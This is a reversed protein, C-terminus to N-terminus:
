HNEETEGPLHWSLVEILDRGNGELEKEIWYEGVMRDNMAMYESINVPDSSWGWFCLRFKM